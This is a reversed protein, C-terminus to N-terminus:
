AMALGYPLRAAQPRLFEPLSRGSAPIPPRPILETYMVTASIAGVVIGLEQAKEWFPWLRKDDPAWLEGPWYIKCFKAGHEKVMRTMERIAADVGRTSPEFVPGPLLRDPYKKCADLMFNVNTGKPDVEMYVGHRHPVLIQMDTGEMDMLDILCDPWPKSALIKRMKMVDKVFLPQYKPSNATMIRYALRSGRFRHYDPYYKLHEEEAMMDPSFHGEHDIIFYDQAM